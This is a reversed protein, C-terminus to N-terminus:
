GPPCTGPRDKDELATRARRVLRVFAIRVGDPFEDDAIPETFEIRAATSGSPTALELGIGRQDVHEARVATADPHGAFARAALLLEDAHDDNMHRLPDSHRDHRM